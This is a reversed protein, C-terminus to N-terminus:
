SRPRTLGLWPGFYGMSSHCCAGFMNSVPVRLLRHQLAWLPPILRTSLLLNQSFQPATEPPPFAPTGTGTVRKRRLPQGVLNSLQMRRQLPHQHACGRGEGYGEEWYPKGRSGLLQLTVPTGHFHQGGM